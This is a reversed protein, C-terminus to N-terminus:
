VSLNGGARADRVHFTAENDHQCCKSRHVGCSHQAVRLDSDHEASILLAEAIRHSQRPAIQHFRGLLAIHREFKLGAHPDVSM